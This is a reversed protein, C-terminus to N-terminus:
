SILITEVLTKFYQPVSRSPETAKLVLEKLTRIRERMQKGHEQGLVIKLSKLVGSKTFVHGEVRVGIGWIEEVVRGNM